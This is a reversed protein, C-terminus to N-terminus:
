DTLPPSPLLAMALEVEDDLGFDAGALPSSQGAAAFTADCRAPTGAVVALLTQARRLGAAGGGGGAADRAAHGLRRVAAAYEAACAALCDRRAAATPSVTTTENASQITTMGAIIRERTAKATSRAMMAAIAALGRADATASGNDRRLKWLCYDNSGKDGAAYRECENELTTSSSAAAAATSAYPLVLLFFTSFFLAAQLGTSVM